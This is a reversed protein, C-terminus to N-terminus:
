PQWPILAIAAKCWCLPRHKDSRTTVDCNVNENAYCKINDIRYVPGAITAYDVKESSSCSTNEDLVGNFAAAIDAGDVHLPWRAQHYWVGIAFTHDIDIM